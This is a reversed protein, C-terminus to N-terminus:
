KDEETRKPEPVVWLTLGDMGTIRVRQGKRLPTSTRAQWLESHARVRGREDFDELVEAVSGVMEEQGTVVPRRRAKIAMGLIIVFLGASLLAFAAILPLSIGFGPVETDILILSGIVFAAVGGIGLAGFSPAFAEAVMLAIGLLILALGAYNIPLVQFAFLALLLCIAGFVGPVVAGPNSFEFILGYIGLLMLIYAVNPNTIVALLQSRWDPETHLLILGATHLVVDRGMVTVKRGDLKQLLDAMDNAMLDIVGLELAAGAELSAAERVAQEAWDANRGRLRALGRIYAVADNVAKRNMADGEAPARAGPEAEGERPQKEPASPSPPTGLPAMQVPTAAGLNTAPAMAAVHSAYLIYTGASAARAGSPYIYSVVPIPSALIDQIIDRMATDLGGPTDLRLVIFQAGERVAKALARNLYDSTAPGIPGEIDLRMAHDGPTFPLQAALWLPLLLLAYGLRRLGRM